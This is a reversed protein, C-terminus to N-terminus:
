TKKVSPMETQLRKKQMMNGKVIKIKNSSKAEAESSERM